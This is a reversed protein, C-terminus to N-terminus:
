MKRCLRQPIKIKDNKLYLEGTGVCGYVAAPVEHVAVIPTFLWEFTQLLM